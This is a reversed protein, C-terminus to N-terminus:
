PHGDLAAEAVSRGRRLKLYMLASVFAAGNISQDACLKAVRLTFAQSATKADLEAMDASTMQQWIGDLVALDVGQRRLNAESARQLLAAGTFSEVLDLQQPTWKNLQSCSRGAAAAREEAAQVDGKALPLSANAEGGSMIDSVQRAVVQEILARDDAATAELICNFGAPRGPEAHALPAIVLDALACAFALAVKHV